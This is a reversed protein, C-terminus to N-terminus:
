LIKGNKRYQESSDDSTPINLHLKMNAGVGERRDFHQTRYSHGGDFNKNQIPSKAKLKTRKVQRERENFRKEQTEKEKISKEVDIEDRPSSHVSKSKENFHTKIKKRIEAKEESPSKSPLKLVNRESRQAVIESDQKRIKGWDDQSTSISDDYSKSFEM